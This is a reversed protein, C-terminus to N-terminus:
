KELLTINEKKQPLDVKEMNEVAYTIERAECVCDEIQLYGPRHVVRPSEQQTNTEEM